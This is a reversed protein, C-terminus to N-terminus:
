VLDTVEAPASPHINGVSVGVNRHLLLWLREQEVPNPLVLNWPTTMHERSGRPAAFLERNNAAQPYSYGKISSSQSSALPLAIQCDALLSIYYHLIQYYAPM